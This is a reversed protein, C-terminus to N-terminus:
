SAKEESRSAGEAARRKQALRVVIWRLLRAAQPYLVPPRGPLRVGVQPERRPDESAGDADSREM